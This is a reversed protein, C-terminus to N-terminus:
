DLLGVRELLRDVRVSAGYLDGFLRLLEALTLREFFATRQLSIGILRRVREPHRTVDIGDVTVTGRDIPLMGEIAELVTTKGAGNPGLLGFVEGRRVEFSVGRVAVVAGYSKHLDVVSVLPTGNAAAPETTNVETNRGIASTMECVLRGVVSRTGSTGAILLQ